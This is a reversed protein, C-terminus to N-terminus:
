ALRRIEEDVPDPGTPRPGRDVTVKDMARLITIRRPRRRRYTFSAYPHNAIWIDNAPGLTAKYKGIDTFQYKGMLENLKKDWLASYRDQQFWCGPTFLVRLWDAM